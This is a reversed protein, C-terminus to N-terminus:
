RQQAVRPQFPLHVSFISDTDSRVDNRVAFRETEKRGERPQGQAPALGGCGWHGVVIAGRVMFPGPTCRRDQSIPKKQTLINPLPHQTHKSTRIPTKPIYLWTKTPLLVTAAGPRQLHSSSATAPGPRSMAGQPAVACCGWQLWQEAEEGTAPVHVFGGLFASSWLGGDRSATPHPSSPCFGVWWLSAKSKRQLPCRDSGEEIAHPSLLHGSDLCAETGSSRASLLPFLAWCCGLQKVPVAQSARNSHPSAGARVGRVWRPSAAGTGDGWCCEWWGLSAAPHDSHSILSHGLRRFTEM